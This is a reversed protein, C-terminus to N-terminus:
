DARQTRKRTRTKGDTALIPRIAPTSLIFQSPAKQLSHNEKVFDLEEPSVEGDLHVNKDDLHRLNVTVPM